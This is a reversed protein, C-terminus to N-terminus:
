RRAGGRSADVARAEQVRTLWTQGAALADSPRPLYAELIRFGANTSSSVTM